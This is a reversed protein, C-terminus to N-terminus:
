YNVADWARQSFPSRKGKIKSRHQKEELRKEKDRKTPKTKKRLVVPAAAKKLLNVLRELADERNREQNRFRRAEIVIVGDKSLKRGALRALQTKIQPTLGKAKAIPFRLQVASSVKNVNQGGPGSARIFHEEIDRSDIRFTETIDIM